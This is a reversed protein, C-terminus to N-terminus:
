NIVAGINVISGKFEKGPIGGDHLISQRLDIPRLSTLRKKWYVV